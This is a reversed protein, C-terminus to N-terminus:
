SSSHRGDTSTAMNDHLEPIIFPSLAYAVAMAFAKQRLVLGSTLAGVFGGALKVAFGSVFDKGQKLGDDAIFVHRHEHGSVVAEDVAIRVFHQLEAVPHDLLGLGM